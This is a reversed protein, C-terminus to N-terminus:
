PILIETELAIGFRRLVTFRALEILALVDSATANRDVAIVNAHEQTVFAGGIRKGKLGVEELLRGAPPGCPPNKFVSGACRLGRMWVRRQAVEERKRRIAARPEPELEFEAELVVGGAVAPCDRYAFPLASGSLRHIIGQADMWRISVVRKGISGGFAGANMRILGGIRGPIGELFELGGLKEQEAFALLRGASVAAGARICHNERRMTGFAATELRVALGPFGSDPVLLNSGNGVVLVPVSLRSAEKLLRALDDETGVEALVEADGGIGFTTQAGLPARGYLRSDALPLVRLADLLANHGLSKGGNKGWEKQAQRAIWEVSGAGLVLWGDGGEAHRRMDQWAEELSRVLRPHCGTARFHAYLDASTGGELPAESAEYVPTLILDHLGSFAPPFEAGFARTRTYRHPQFVARLRRFPLTKATELVTRIETPHHGYDSLVCLDPRALVQEFRRRPLALLRAAEQLPDFPVGWELAAAIAGLTNLVNHRGPLPAEIQGLPRQRHVLTYSLSQPSWVADRAQFDAQASFGYSRATPFVQALSAARPDDACYLLRRRVRGMFASFCEEFAAQSEFHEMHDFDVNTVLAIAPAYLALTGDSEDGEVVFPSDQAGVGAPVDFPSVRGGICFSPSLGAYHFLQLLFSATSTKGHTGAIVASPRENVLTALVEGRRFLPIGRTRAAAPEPADPPAASTRIAWAAGELHRADHGIAIAIGERRLWDLLPSDVQDCGSVPHGRRALLFALGAM